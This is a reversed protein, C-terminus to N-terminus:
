WIIIIKLDTKIILFNENDDINWGIQFSHLDYKEQQFQFNSISSHQVFIGFYMNLLKANSIIRCLLFLIAMKIVLTMGNNQCDALMDNRTISSINAIFPILPVYTSLLFDM